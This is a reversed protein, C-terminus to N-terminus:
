NRTLIARGPHSRVLFWHPIANVVMAGAEYVQKLFQTRNEAYLLFPTIGYNSYEIGSLAISNEEADERTMQVLSCFLCMRVTIRNEGRQTQFLVSATDPETGAM